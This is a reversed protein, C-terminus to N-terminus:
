PYVTEPFFYLGGEPFYTVPSMLCSEPFGWDAQKTRVEEPMYVVRAM